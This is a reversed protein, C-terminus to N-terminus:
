LRAYEAGAKPFSQRLRQQRLLRCGCDFRDDLSSFGKQIDAPLEFRIVAPSILVNLASFLVNCISFLVNFDEKGIGIQQFGCIVIFCGHTMCPFQEIGKAELAYKASFIDAFDRMKGRCCRRDKQFLQKGDTRDSRNGSLPFALIPEFLLLMFLMTILYNSFTLYSENRDKQSRLDGNGPLLDRTRHMPDMSVCCVSGVRSRKNNCILSATIGKSFLRANVLLQM